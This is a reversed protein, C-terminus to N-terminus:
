RATAGRHPHHHDDEDRPAVPCPPPPPGRQCLTCNGPSAAYGHSVPRSAPQSARPSAPSSIIMISADHHDARHHFSHHVSCGPALAHTRARVHVSARIASPPLIGRPSSPTPSCM